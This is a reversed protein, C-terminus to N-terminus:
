GEKRKLRREQVGAFFEMMQVFECEDLPLGAEYETDYLEALEIGLNLGFYVETEILERLRAVMTMRQTSMAESM